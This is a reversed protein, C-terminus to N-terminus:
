CVCSDAIFAFSDLSAFAVLICWSLRLLCFVCGVSLCLAWLLANLFPSDAVGAAPYGQRGVDALATCMVRVSYL